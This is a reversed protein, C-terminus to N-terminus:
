KMGLVLDFVRNHPMGSKGYIQIMMSPVGLGVVFMCITTIYWMIGFRDCITMVVAQFLWSYIYITFNHRSIWMAFKNEGILLAFQWCASIMTVAVAFMVFRNGYFRQTLLVSFLTAVLAWSTRQLKFGCEESSSKNVMMGIVFFVVSKKLDGFGFWDSDYPWFYLIVALVLTVSLVLKRNSKTIVKRWIGFIAYIMLLVPLFWFHGWVGIRPILIVKLLYGATFGSFGQHELAYKPLLAVFSLVIYPTLLRLIKHGTWKGYGDREFSESNIFLFGAIFFFLPMHFTYIFTITSHLITGEFTSWDSSHSHGLIVLVVGLAYLNDIVFMRKKNM